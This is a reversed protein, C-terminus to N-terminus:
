KKIKGGCNPCYNTNLLNLNSKEAGEVTFGCGKCHTKYGFPGMHVLWEVERESEDSNQHKKLEEIKAMLMRMRDIAKANVEIAHDLHKKTQSLQTKLFEIYEEDNEGKIWVIKNETAMFYNEGIRAKSTIGPKKRIITIIANM